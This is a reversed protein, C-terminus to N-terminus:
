KNLIAMVATTDPLKLGKRPAGRKATGCDLGLKILDRIRSYFTAECIDLRAMTVRDRVGAARQDRIFDALQKNEDTPM